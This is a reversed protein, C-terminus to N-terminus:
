TRFEITGSVAIIQHTADASNKAVGYGGINLYLTEEQGVKNIKYTIVVNEYLSYERDIAGYFTLYHWRLVSGLQYPNAGTSASSQMVDLYYWYNDLTLEIREYQPLQACEHEEQSQQACEHEEFGNGDPTCAFLMLTVALLLLIKTLKKM